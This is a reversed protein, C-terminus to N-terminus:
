ERVMKKSDIVKGDAVLTYHYLGSSLDAAFVNIKGKGRTKIDVTQIIQGNSNYFLIQAKEISAPVNYTITTQEAFPNPVNQNLVIVDKDSLEIDLQNDPNTQKQNHGNNSHGNNCCQTIMSMLQNLQSQTAQNISDQRSQSTRLSDIVLQQEQIARTLLAAMAKYNVTKLTKAVNVVNGLSDYTEAINITDVLEPYVTELQQAVFGYDLNSKFNLQPVNANTFNYQVPNLTKVKALTNFNNINTKVQADSLGAKDLQTQMERQKANLEQIGGIAFPILGVYNLSKLTAVSDIRTGTSDTRGHVKIQQVLEPVVQEVDQAIFGYNVGSNTNLQPAYSNNYEYKVPQLKEIIGLSSSIKDINQKINKDSVIFTTGIYYGNGNVNIDGNTQVAYNGTVATGWNAVEIAVQPINLTNYTNRVFLRALGPSSTQCGNLDGINVNGVGNFNLSNNNLDVRWNTPLQYPTPSSCPTGFSGQVYVVDGNADVSLVGQGPNVAPINTSNVNTFRLGTQASSFGQIEVRNGPNCGGIGFGTKGEQWIINKNNMAILRNSLLKANAVEVANSCDGGLQVNGASSVQLGNNATTAGSANVLVVDGDGDVTLVKTADVGNTGNALVASSATLKTFRLGSGTNGYQPNKMNASIEFTNGVNCFATSAPQGGVGVGGNNNNFDAFWFNHNDLFVTRDSQLRAAIIEGLNGCSGGLQVIGTTPNIFIGNDANALGNGPVLIVNGQNDVSLVKAAPNAMPTNLNTLNTFRLGSSGNGSTYYPVGPQSTIEVTNGPTNDHFGFRRATGNSRTNFYMDGLNTTQFETFIGQTPTTNYTYTTRLQPANANTGTYPDTDLIELRRVPTANININQFNGIGFTGLGPTPSMRGLEMGQTSVALGGPGGTFNFSLFDSGGPGGYADDSWNIVAYSFNNGTSRLGVYMADSNETYLTGTNFWNRIGSGSSGWQGSNNGGDIHLHAKPTFFPNSGYGTTPTFSRGLGIWHGGHLRGSADAPLLQAPNNDILVDQSGFVGMKIWTNNTADSGIFNRGLAPNISGATNGGAQWQANTNISLVTAIGAILYKFNM